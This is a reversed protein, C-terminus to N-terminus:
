PLGRRTQARFLDDLDGSRLFDGLHESGGLLGCVLGRHIETILERYLIDRDRDRWRDGGYLGGGVGWWAGEKFPKNLRTYGVM